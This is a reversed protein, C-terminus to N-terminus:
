GHKELEKLKTTLKEFLTDSIQADNLNGKQLYIVEREYDKLIDQTRNSKDEKFAVGINSLINPLDVGEDIASTLANGFLTKFANDLTVFVNQKKRQLRIKAGVIVQWDEEIRLKKIADEVPIGEPVDRKYTLLIKKIERPAFKKLDLLKPTKLPESKFEYTSPMCKNFFEKITNMGRNGSHIETLFLLDKLKYPLFAFYTIDREKEGVLEFKTKLEGVKVEGENKGFHQKKPKTKMIKGFYRDDVKEIAIEELTGDEHPIKYKKTNEQWNQKAALNSLDKNFKYDKCWMRYYYFKSDVMYRSRILNNFLNTNSAYLYLAYKQTFVGKITYSGM